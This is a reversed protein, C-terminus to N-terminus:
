LQSEHDLLFIKNHMGGSFGGLGNSSVVRHCPIIIPIPNKGNATGVARYAKPKNIMKAQEKYSITAGFKIQRLAQWVQKQFSTGELDLPMNFSKRKGNFYEKLQKTAEKTIHNQTSKKIAINKEYARNEFHLEKVGKDSAILVLTGMTTNITTQFNM